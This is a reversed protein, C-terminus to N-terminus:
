WKSLCPVIALEESNCVNESQKHPKTDRYMKQASDYNLGAVNNDANLM